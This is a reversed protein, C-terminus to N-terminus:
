NSRFHSSRTSTGRYAAQEAAKDRTRKKTASSVAGKKAIRIFFSCM